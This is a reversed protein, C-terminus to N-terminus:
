RRRGEVVDIRGSREVPRWLGQPVVAGWRQVRGGAAAVPEIVVHLCPLFVSMLGGVLWHPAGPPASFFQVTCSVLLSWQLRVQQQTHMVGAPPLM